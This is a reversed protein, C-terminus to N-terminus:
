DLESKNEEVLGDLEVFEWSLKQESPQHSFILVKDPDFVFYEPAHERTHYSNNIGSGLFIIGEKTKFEFEKVQQGTDGGVLVVQIGRNQVEVLRPYILEAFTGRVECGINLNPEYFNFITQVNIKNDAIENTLLAHHHLIVLHSVDKLTDTVSKIMNWQGNLTECEHPQHFYQPYGFETTNLVMLCLDNKIKSYYTKRGTKEEIFSFDAKKELVDHNGIAWHTDESGLDLLTDVYHITNPHHPINECLDGGLWLEDYTKFPIKELRYDMRGWNPAGWQYTHGTFFYKYTTQQTSPITCSSQFLFLIFVFIFLSSKSGSSNLNSKEFEKYDTM